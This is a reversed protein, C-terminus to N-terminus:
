LFDICVYGKTYINVGSTGHVRRDVPFDGPTWPGAQVKIGLEWQGGALPPASLAPRPLMSLAHPAGHEELFSGSRLQLFVLKNACVCGGRLTSRRCRKVFM